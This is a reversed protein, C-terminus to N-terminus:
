KKLIILIGALQLTMIIQSGDRKTVQGSMRRALLGM